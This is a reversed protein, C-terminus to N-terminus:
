EDFKLEEVGHSPLTRRILWWVGFLDSLGVWLRNHFGYKSRGARRPRDDVGLCRSRGGHMLFLAPLFRHMHAFHPLALFDDRRFAKLGCGTDHTHDGLVGSRVRNAVRSSIRKIWSARRRRRSGALILAVGPEAAERLARYLALADAPDNQGDGDMTAIWPARAAEIGTLLAASKGRRRPHQLLRIFARGAAAELVREASHDRSGDDVFIIEFDVAGQLTAVVEELVPAVNEAEDSVPVVLALEPASAPQEATPM